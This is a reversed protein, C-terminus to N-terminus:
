IKLYKVNVQVTRNGNFENIRPQYALALRIKNERGAFAAELESNGYKAEIQNLFDAKDGFYPIQYRAGYINCVDIKIYSGDKGLHSLRLVKLDREGFLVSPNGAGFPALMEIENVEKETFVNFAVAADLTIKEIMDEDTLRCNENLRQRLLSVNETPLSLGAAMPHGGFKTFLESCEKLGEFMNYEPISRASGKMGDKVATLVITPRCYRERIRGAIIGVLSEHCEPLEVVLVKDQVGGADLMDYAKEVFDATLKKREENLSKCVKANELAETLSASKLLGIAKAALDLRGTANFCPGVVFGVSYETVLYNKLECVYLLALLGLNLQKGNTYKSLSSSTLSELPIGNDALRKIVPMYSENIKKLGLKAVARNETVLPVVDCITAVALFEIYDIFGRNEECIKERRLLESALKAAVVAGCIEKCPYSDEPRKPDILVDADPLTAPLEHHDTVVLTIGLRRAESAAETASIGNDCTIVTDIGDNGAKEIMEINIGYGDKIRDPIYFDVDAGIRMLSDTLVFTSMIGDADYDGIIRIKKKEAIKREILDAAKSLDYILEPPNFLKEDPYLYDEIQKDEVLGRNVLLRAAVSSLNFKKMIGAFDGTKNYVTWKQM